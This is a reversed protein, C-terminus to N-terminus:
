EGRKKKVAWKGKGGAKKPKRPKLKTATKKPRAIASTPRTTPDPRETPKLELPKPNAPDEAGEGEDEGPGDSDDDGGDQLETSTRPVAPMGPGQTPVPSFLGRWTGGVGTAEFIVGGLNDVPPFISVPCKDAAASVKDLVGLQGRVVGFWSGTLRDPKPIMLTIGDISVQTSAANKHWKDERLKKGSELDVIHAEALQTKRIILRCISAPVKASGEQCLAALGQLYERPVAWEGDDAGENTAECLVSKQNGTSGAFLEAGKIRFHVVAHAEQDGTFALLANLERKTLEIGKITSHM